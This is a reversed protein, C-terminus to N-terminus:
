CEGERRTSLVLLASNVWFVMTCTFWLTCTFGCADLIGNYMYVVIYMYVCMYMYGLIGDYMYVVIYKYFCM